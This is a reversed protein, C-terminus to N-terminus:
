LRSQMEFFYQWVLLHLCAKFSFRFLICMCRGSHCVRLKSHQSLLSYIRLGCLCCHVLLAACRLIGSRPICHIRPSIQLYIEPLPLSHCSPQKGSATINETFHYFLTPKSALCYVALPICLRSQMGFSYQWVLLHLCAKFPFRFLICM